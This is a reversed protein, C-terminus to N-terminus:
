TLPSLRPRRHLRLSPRSRLHSPPLSGWWLPRCCPSSRPCRRVLCTSTTPCTSASPTTPRPPRPRLPLLPPRPPHRPRLLVPRSLLPHALLATPREAPTSCSSMEPREYLLLPPHLLHRLPLRNSAAMGHHAKSRTPTSVQYRPLRPPHLPLPRLPRLLRLLHRVGALTSTTPTTGAAARRAAM